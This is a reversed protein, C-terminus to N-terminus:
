SPAGIRRAFRASRRALQRNLAEQQRRAHRNTGPRARGKDVTVAYRKKCEGCEYLTAGSQLAKAVEARAEQPFDEEALTRLGGSKCYPCEERPRGPPPGIAVDIDPHTNM